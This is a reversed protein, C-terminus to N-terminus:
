ALASDNVGGTASSVSRLSGFGVFCVYGGLSCHKSVMFKGYVRFKM